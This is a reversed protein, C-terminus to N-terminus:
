EFCPSTFLKRAHEEPVARHTYPLGTCHYDQAYAVAGAPLGTTAGAPLGTTAGVPLGTTTRGRHDQPLGTTTRHMHWQVEAQLTRHYDRQTAGAPLGTTAGVPLGTTTGRPYCRGTTRHYCRGTTGRPYDRPPGTGTTRHYDQGMGSYVQRHDQPLGKTTRHMHWQM